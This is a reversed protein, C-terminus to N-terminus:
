VLFRIVLASKKELSLNAYFGRLKEFQALLSAREADPLRLVQTLAGADSPLSGLFAAIARCRDARLLRADRIMEDDYLPMGGVPELASAAEADAGTTKAATLLARQLPQCADLELSGPIGGRTRAVLLTPVLEPDALLLKERAPSLSILLGHLARQPTTVVVTPLWLLEGHNLLAEAYKAHAFSQGVEPYVALGRPDLERVAWPPLLSVIQLGHRKPDREVEAYPTGVALAVYDGGIQCYGDGELAKALRRPTSSPIVVFTDISL